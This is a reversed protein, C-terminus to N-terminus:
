INPSIYEIPSPANENNNSENQCNYSNPPTIPEPKYYNDNTNVPISTSNDKNEDNKVKDNENEKKVLPQVIISGRDNDDYNELNCCDFCNPLIIGLIDIFCIFGAIGIIIIYDKNFETDDLYLKACYLGIILEFFTIAFLAIRRSYKKGVGKTLLYITFGILAFVAAIVALAIAIACIILALGALGKGADGDVKCDNCKCDCDCDCDCKCDCGKCDCNNCEGCNCDQSSSPQCDCTSCSCNCALCYDICGYCGYMFFDVCLILCFFM